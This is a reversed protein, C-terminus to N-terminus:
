YSLNISFGTVWEKKINQPAVLRHGTFADLYMSQYYSRVGFVGGMLYRQGAFSNRGNVWGQDIGTYLQTGSIPTNWSVEQQLYHGNDGSLMIEGDFGRVSYRGGIFFRDQPVLIKPAYQGRWNLRYQMAQNSISFPITYRIDASWLPARAYGEVPLPRNYIDVIQEEPAPQANFAGTGRRYDLSLDLLGQGIYQRHQLGINWGATERRQVGVENKEIFNQNKKHYGKAYLSTKYNSGRSIMRTLMLNTQETTGSFLIPANYGAVYQEYEYKNHSISFDYNKIPVSYNFYYSKNLDQHLDDLSHSLNINLTDNLNLFNNFNFGLSAIYKGTTDSGSDDVNLNFGVKQEPTSHVVLNSYAVLQTGDEKIAPEIKVEVERGLIRRLNETGQEIHKLNLVENKNIPFALFLEPQSLANDQSIIKYIRGVQLNVVLDGGNLDQPNIILQTTIFGKKILENQAYKVINQLSQTGLCRGKIFNPKNLSQFLFGFQSQDLNQKPDNVIFKIKQISFCPQEEIIVNKTLLYDIQQKPVLQFQENQLQKQLQDLRQQQRIIEPIAKDELAYGLTPFNITVYILGIHTIHNKLNIM